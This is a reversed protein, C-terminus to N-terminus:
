TTAAEEHASVDESVPPHLKVGVLEPYEDFWGAALEQWGPQDLHVMALLPLVSRGRAKALELLPANREIFDEHAAKLETCCLIGSVEGSDLVAAIREASAVSSKGFYHFHLDFIDVDPM